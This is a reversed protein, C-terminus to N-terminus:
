PAELRAARAELEALTDKSVDGKAMERSLDGILKTAETAQPDGSPLSAKVKRVKALLEQLRQNQDVPAAREAPAKPPPNDKPAEKRARPAENAPTPPPTAAVAGPVVTPEAPAAAAAPTPAPVAVAPTPVVVTRLPADAVRDRNLLLGGVGIGLGLMMAMLGVVAKVPVGRAPAVLSASPMPTAMGAPLPALEHPYGRAAESPDFPGAIMPRVGTRAAFVEVEHNSVEVAPPPTAVSLLKTIETKSQGLEGWLMEGVLTALPEERKQKSVSASLAARFEAATQFRDATELSLAKKIVADLAPPVDNRFASAPSWKPDVQARLMVPIPAKKIFRELTLLEWLVIGMAYLDVRRDVQEAAVQEPAMYGPTGMVMGTSTRWDQLNSKGLGLDILRTVGDEGVMINKPAIDRHVVGLAQGTAPHTADHLAELGALAGDIIDLASALSARHGAEKMDSILRALTWGPLYEMALYFTDGVRGVDYVKAVHRSDVAVALEAEHRFRKVFDGQTALQGHLRKIVVPSPVGRKPDSPRSLSVDGTGGVGLSKLLVYAGFPKPFVSETL